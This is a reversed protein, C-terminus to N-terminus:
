INSHLFEPDISIPSKFILPPSDASALTFSFMRRYRDNSFIEENNEYRDLNFM